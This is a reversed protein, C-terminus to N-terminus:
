AMRQTTPPPPPPDPILSTTRYHAPACTPREFFKVNIICAKFFEINKVYKSNKEVLFGETQTDIFTDRYRTSIEKNTM